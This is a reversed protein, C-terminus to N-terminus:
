KWALVLSKDEIKVIKFSNEDEYLYDFYYVESLIYSEPLIYSPFIDASKKFKSTNCILGKNKNM